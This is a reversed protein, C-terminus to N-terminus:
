ANDRIHCKWSVPAARMSWAAAVALLCGLRGSLPSRYSHQQDASAQGTGARSGLLLLVLIGPSTPSDSSGLGEGAQVSPRPCQVGVRIRSRDRPQVVVVQGLEQEVQAAVESAM